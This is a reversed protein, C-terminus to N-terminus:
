LTIDLYGAGYDPLILTRGLSTQVTCKPEYRVGPIGANIMQSVFTGSISASGEILASADPDLADVAAITWVPASITEGDELLPSFDVTFIDREGARMPDYNSM